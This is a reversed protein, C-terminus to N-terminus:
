IVEESKLNNILASIMEFSDKIHEIHLCQHIYKKITIYYNNHKNTKSM